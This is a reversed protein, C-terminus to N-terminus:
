LIINDSDNIIALDILDLKRTALTLLEQAHNFQQEAVVKAKIADERSITGVQNLTQQVTGDQLKVEQNKMIKFKTEM